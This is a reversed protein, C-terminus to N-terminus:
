EKEVFAVGSKTRVSEETRGFPGHQRALLLAYLAHHKHCEGIPRIRRASRANASSHNATPHTYPLNPQFPLPVSTPLPGTSPWNSPGTSSYSTPSKLTQSPSRGTNNSILARYEDAPGLKIWDDIPTLWYAPGKSGRLFEQYLNFNADMVSCRRLYKQIAKTGANQNALDANDIDELLAGLAFGHDYLKQFADKQSQDKRKQYWPRTCWEHSGLPSAKRHLLSQFM